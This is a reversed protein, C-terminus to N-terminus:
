RAKYRDFIGDSLFKRMFIWKGTVVNSCRPRSVLEWTGNSMLAGYEEEMNARWNLNAHVTRVSTLIPSSTMSPTTAALILRDSPLQFGAKAWTVM